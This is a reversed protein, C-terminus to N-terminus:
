RCPIYGFKGGKCEKKISSFTLLQPIMKIRNYKGRSKNGLYGAKKFKQRYSDLTKTSIHNLDCEMDVKTFRKHSNIYSILETIIANM